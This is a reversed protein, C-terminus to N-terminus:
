FFVFFFGLTGTLFLCCIAVNLYNWLLNIFNHSLHAPLLLFGCVISCYRLAALHSPLFRVCRSWLYSHNGSRSHSFLKFITVKLFSTLQMETRLCTVVWTPLWPFLYHVSGKRGGEPRRCPKWNPQAWNLLLPCPTKQHLPRTCLSPHLVPTSGSPCMFSVCCVPKWHEPAFFLSNFHVLGKFKLYM